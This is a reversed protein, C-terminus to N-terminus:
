LTWEFFLTRFGLPLISTVTGRLQEHEFCLRLTKLYLQFSLKPQIWEDFRDKKMWTIRQQLLYEYFSASRTDGLKRALQIAIAYAPLCNPYSRIVRAFAKFAQALDGQILAIEAQLFYAKALRALVFRAQFRSIYLHEIRPLPIGHEVDEANEAILVTYDDVKKYPGILTLHGDHLAREFEASEISTSSEEFRDLTFLRDNERFVPREFLPTEERNVRNFIAVVERM